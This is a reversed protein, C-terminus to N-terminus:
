MSFASLLLRGRGYAGLISAALVADKLFSKPFSKESPDARLIEILGDFFLLSVPM